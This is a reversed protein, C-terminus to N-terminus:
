RRVKGDPRRGFTLLSFPGGGGPPRCTASDKSLIPAIQRNFTIAAEAGSVFSHVGMGYIIAPGLALGGAWALIRTARM